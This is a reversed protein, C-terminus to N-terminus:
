TGRLSSSYRNQAPEPAVAVREEPDFVGAHPLRDIIINDTGFDTPPDDHNEVAIM